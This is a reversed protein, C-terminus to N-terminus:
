GFAVGRGAGLRPIILLMVFAVVLSALVISASLQIAEMQGMGKMTLAATSRRALTFGDPALERRHHVLELQHATSLFSVPDRPRSRVAQGSVVHCLLRM